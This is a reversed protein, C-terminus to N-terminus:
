IAYLPRVVIEDDANRTIVQEYDQGTFPVELLDDWGGGEPLNGAVICHKLARFSLYRCYGKITAYEISGSISSYQFYGSISTSSISGSISTSEIYGSVSSYNFNGSVSLAYINGSVSLAYFNGSISTRYISGSVSSNYISGSVSLANIYGSLSTRDINGSISTRYINGSVSTKYIEGSISTSDIYGSVSSYNFDGSITNGYFYGTIRTNKYTNNQNSVMVSNHMSTKGNGDINPSLLFDMVRGTLSVDTTEGEAFATVKGFTHCWVGNTTDVEALIGYSDYNDTVQAFLRTGGDELTLGDWSDTYGDDYIYQESYYGMFPHLYAGLKQLRQQDTPNMTNITLKAGIVDTVYGDDDMETPYDSNVYLHSQGMIAFRKFQINKFDYPLCNGFEDTMEYIVGKGNATDAWAFRTTDNDICYKLQWVELKSHQFYTDGSHRAAMATESLISASEAMVLVDFAHGASRTMVEGTHDDVIAAVTTVFDTIRYWRGAKMTGSDRLAKLASWTVDTVEGVSENLISQVQAGTQTLDFNGQGM